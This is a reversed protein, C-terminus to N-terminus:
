RHSSQCVLGHAAVLSLLGQEAFFANPWRHHDTGRGRGRSGKRYRLINCLRMRVWSDLVEFMFRRSHQFYEFWGRM